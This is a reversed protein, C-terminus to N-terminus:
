ECGPCCHTESSPRMTGLCSSGKTTSRRWWPTRQTVTSRFPPLPETGMAAIHLSCQTHPPETGEDSVTQIVAFKVKGFKDEEVWPEKVVM